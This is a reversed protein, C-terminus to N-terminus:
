HSVMAEPRQQKVPYSVEVKFSDQGAMDGVTQLVKVSRGCANPLFVPLDEPSNEPSKVFGTERHDEELSGVKGM